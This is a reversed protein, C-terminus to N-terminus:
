ASRPFRENSGDEECDDSELSSRDREMKYESSLSSTRSPQRTRAILKQVTEKELQLICDEVEILM